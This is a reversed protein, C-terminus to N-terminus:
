MARVLHRANPVEDQSLPEIESEAVMIVDISEGLVNFVELAYGPEPNSGAPLYDVVTAVDGKKLRHDPQDVALEVEKYLEFKM